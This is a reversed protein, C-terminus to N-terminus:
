KKLKLWEVRANLGMGKTEKKFKKYDSYELDKILRKEERKNKIKTEEIKKKQEEKRAVATEAKILDHEENPAEINWPKWGALLAIQKWSENRSDLAESVNNLKTVLRDLPLNTFAEVAKGAASYSPSLNLRGGIAVDFGREEIVAEDYQMTNMAGYVKQAKAGLPPAISLLQVLVQGYDANYGKAKQDMYKMIANKATAAVTGYLGSGRLLTDAMGNATKMLIKKEKKKKEDEDDEFALAFVANQLTSFILSQVAGYYLIKFVHTKADGRGNALDRTAKKVLRTYQMPTNAFAHVMRGAVSAQHQSVLMPDGSQQTEDSIKSFANWADAEAEPKSMGKKINSNVRNRYFTAGGTAIAFSDALQTPAFGIKLLYALVAQAKGQGGSAATAIEAASVDSKLGGRREKLKDSNFILKFDKWYQPQNAFAIGAKLPNNDSWNLFNTASTLQLIASRTNFFMIAGTSNNVWNRWNADNKNSGLTRNKGSYMRFLSDELAARFNPGRAAEIKNLNENSFIVESNEIFEKLFEKRGNGESLNNIDSIITGVNWYKSPKIWSGGETGITSLDRAFGSLESDSSVIKNLKKADRESIGPIKEGSLTWMSVRIAQDYTYDGDPILKGLKKKVAPYAKTLAKFDNKALRKASDIARVGKSYPDILSKIFFEKHGDGKKGKGMFDYLLGMFDEAAPPLFYKYKGKTSGRRRAVMDSYEKYSKIGTKDEIIENFTESLSKSFKMHGENAKDRAALEKTGIVKEGEKFLIMKAPDTIGKKYNFELIGDLLRLRKNKESQFSIDTNQKGLISLITHLEIPIRRATYDKLLRDVTKMKEPWLGEGALIDKLATKFQSLPLEHDYETKESKGGKVREIPPKTRSVLRLLSGNTKSLADLVERIEIESKGDLTKLMDKFLPIVKKLNENASKGTKSYIQSDRLAALAKSKYIFKGNSDKGLFKKFVDGYIEIYRKDFEAVSEYIGGRTKGSRLEGGRGIKNGEVIYGDITTINGDLKAYSTAENRIVFLLAGIQDESFGSDLVKEIQKDLGVRKKVLARITEKVKDPDKAIALLEKQIQKESKGSAIIKLVKLPENVLKELEQHASAEEKFTEYDIGKLSDKHDDFFKKLDKNGPSRYVLKAYAEKEKGSLASLNKSFKVSGREIDKSVQEALNDAITEKLNIQNDVFAQKVDSAFDGEKKDKFKGSVDNALDEKTIIKNNSLEKNLMEFAIEEAMAKGLAERKGRVVKGDKGVFNSVFEADTISVRKVIQNGSTSGIKDTSVKARDIEKGKWEPYPVFKPDFVAEDGKKWEKGKDNLKVGNKDTRFKGGVSKLIASPVLGMLQTTTLNELMAKKHDVLYKQYSGDKPNGMRKILQKPLANPDRTVAGAANKIEAILPTTQDNKGKPKATYKSIVKSVIDKLKTKIEAALFGPVIKNDSTFKPYQKKTDASPGSGSGEENALNQAEKTDLDVKNKRDAAARVLEKKADKTGFNANSMVWESFTIPVKSNTKRPTAPNYNKWRKRISVLAGELKDPSMGRRTLMNSIIGNPALAKNIGKSIPDIVGKIGTAAKFQEQTKIEKPVLANIKGMTSDPGTDWETDEKTDKTREVQKKVPKQIEVKPSKVEKIERAENSDVKNMLNEYTAEDLGDALKNDLEVRENEYKNEINEIKAKLQSEPDSAQSKSQLGNGKKPESGEAAKSIEKAAEIGAKEGKSYSKILEFLNKGTDANLELEPLGKKRMLPIFKELANGVNENFVILKDGMADGLVTLYEEYYMEKPLEKGESDFRYLKDIRAQVIEKQKPTLENLVKDIITIGERSVNGRKDKFSDRLVFHFVEHKDATINRTKNVVTENTYFSKSAPDYFADSKRVDEGKGVLEEYKKQFDEVSKIATSKGEKTSGLVEEARARNVARGESYLTSLKNQLRDYKYGGPEYAKHDQELQKLQETQEKSPNKQRKLAVIQGGIDFTQDLFEYSDKREKSGYPAKFEPSNNLAAEIVYERNWPNELTKTAPDIGMRDYLIPLPTNVFANNDKDNFKDGKKMKQILIRISEDSPQLASKDEAELRRKALNLEAEAELVNHAKNLVYIEKKAQEKTIEGAKLKSSVEEIKATRNTDIENITNEGPSKVSEAELGVRKAASNVYTPNLNLLRLDGAAAKFIGNKRFAGKAGLLSMKAVEAVYELVFEEPSRDYYGEEHGLLATSARAFEFSFAGANANVFNTGGRRLLDSKALQATVPSWFGKAPMAKLLGAGLSGGAGLAFGFNNTAWEQERTSQQSLGLATKTGELATFTSAEAAGKIFLDGVKRVIKSSKAAKSSKFIRDVVKVTKAISNGSGKRFAYLEGMFLGLDVIGGGVVSRWNQSMAESVENEKTENTPNLGAEKLSNYFKESVEYQLDPSSDEEAIGLYGAASKAGSVWFGEQEVTVLDTNTQVAKNLVAYEELALNFAEALPHDGNIKSINEPLVGTEAMQKVRELDGYVTESSGFFDKVTSTLFSPLTQSAKVLEGDGEDEIFKSIKNSVGVINSYAKTLHDEIQSLETTSAIEEAKRTIKDYTTKAESSLNDYEVVNGTNIDFLEKEGSERILNIEDKIKQKNKPEATKLSSYLEQLKKDNGKLINQGQALVFDNSSKGHKNLIGQLAQSAANEQDAAQLETISMGNIEEKNAFDKYSFGGTVVSNYPEFIGSYSSAGGHMSMSSTVQYDIAEGTTKSYLNSINEPSYSWISSGATDLTQSVALKKATSTSIGKVEVEDLTEDAPAIDVPSAGFTKAYKDFTDPYRGKGAYNELYDDEYTKGGKFQIYRDFIETDKNTQSESSGGGLNSGTNNSPVVAPDVDAPGKQFAQKGDGEALTADPHLKLFEELNKDSVNMVSVKGNKTYKYKKM